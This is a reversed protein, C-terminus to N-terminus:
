LLLLIYLIVNLSNRFHQLLKRDLSKHFSYTPIWITPPPDDLMPSVMGGPGWLYPGGFAPAPTKSTAHFVSVPRKTMEQHLCGGGKAGEGLLRQLTNHTSSGLAWLSHGLCGQELNLCVSTVIDSTHQSTQLSGLPKTYSTSVFAFTGGKQGWTACSFLLSPFQPLHKCRRPGM